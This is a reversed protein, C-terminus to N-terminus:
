WDTWGRAVGLGYSVWAAVITGLLVVISTLLVVINQFLSFGHAWFGLYLLTFAIWATAGLVTVLVRTRFARLARSLSSHHCYDGSWTESSM